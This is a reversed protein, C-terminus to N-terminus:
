RRLRDLRQQRHGVGVGFAPQAVQRIRRVIRLHRPLRLPHLRAPIPVQLPFVLSLSVGQDEAHIPRTCRRMPAPPSRLSSPKRNGVTAPIESQQGHTRTADDSQLLGAVFPHGDHHVLTHPLSLGTRPVDRLVRNGFVAMDVLMCREVASMQGCVLTDVRAVAFLSRAQRLPMDGVM